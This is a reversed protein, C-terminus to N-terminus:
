RRVIEGSGAVSAREVRAEGHWVVHGCGAVAASLTGGALTVEVDGSGAISVDASRAVLERAEVDGSGSVAIEVTDATGRLALDGSGSTTAALRGAQGRWSLDGSGGIALRLDGTGGEIRADGSGSLGFARLAPTAVDVRGGGRCCADGKEVRVVLTDGEVRTTVAEQLDRDITVAVSTAPGVAVAVDLPGEVRVATFPGVERGQTVVAGSSSSPGAWALSPGAAALAALGAVAAAHRM